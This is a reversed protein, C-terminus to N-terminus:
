QIKATTVSRCWLTARGAQFAQVPAVCPVVRLSRGVAVLLILLLDLMFVTPCCVLSVPSGIYVGLPQMSMVGSRCQTIDHQM